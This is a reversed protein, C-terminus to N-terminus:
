SLVEGGQEVAAKQSSLYLQHFVTGSGALTAGETTLGEVVQDPVFAEFLLNTLGSQLGTVLWTIGGIHPFPFALANRDSATVALRQGMGRAVAAITEDTHRAGKPDATTGS